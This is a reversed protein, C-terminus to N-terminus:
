RIGQPLDPGDSRRDRRSRDDCPIGPPRYQNRIHACRDQGRPNSIRAVHWRRWPQLVSGDKPPQGGTRLDQVQVEQVPSAAFKKSLALLRTCRCKGQRSAGSDTRYLASIPTYLGKWTCWDEHAPLKILLSPLDRWSVLYRPLAAAHRHARKRQRHTQKGPLPRH